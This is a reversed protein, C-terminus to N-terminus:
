QLIVKQPAYDEGGASLHVMFLGKLNRLDIIIEGAPHQISYERVIQGQLDIIRVRCEGKVFDPEMKLRLQGGSPNPFVEFRKKDAQPSDFIGTPDGGGTTVTATSSYGSQGFANESKIRYVYTTGRQLEEDAYRFSSGNLRAIVEFNDDDGEARELIFRNVDPSGASWRLEVGTEEIVVASLTESAAPEQNLGAFNNQEYYHELGGALFVLPANWNITVENSAYSCWSDTYSKAPLSSPYSCNDEQGPNPGGALFGPVPEEVDDAESQRHHIHMPPKHGLGTVFSYTTANRGLLYDLTANAALLYDENGGAKYAALLIMGQNAAVANSGWYFENIPVRYPAEEKRDLYGNAMNLLAGRINAAEARGAATLEDEHYVLSMLALPNVSGWGPVGIWGNYNINLQEFYTDDGTSIYLEAAAWNFEDTVNSDGYEGTHIDPNYQQNMENQRYYIEPNALAWEYAKIAAELAANAFEPDIDLFVRYSQAMVAAFNLSAATSKQVVYRTATAKHPMVAGSFSATSLKHYVGGDHPDQMDMMWELNWMAEDLIDPINNSSEPIHTSLGAFFEPFHQYASLLTYTSIGSNVIYKNYDGADYWGKPASIITNEPREETAASAHVRVQEDPHGEPRAWAGGHEETIATSARNFYYAKLATRATALHTREAIVFDYSRGISGVELYYVGPTALSSFDAIAVAEGSKDWNQSKSLTASFVEEDDVTSKVSFSGTGSTIVAALKEGEPYFGLQNLRIEPSTQAFLFGVFCFLLSFLIFHKKM